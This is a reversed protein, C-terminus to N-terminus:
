KLKKNPIVCCKACLFNKICTELIFQGYWKLHDQFINLIFSLYNCRAVACILVLFAM